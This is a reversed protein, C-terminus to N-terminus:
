PNQPALLWLWAPPNLTNTSPAGVMNLIPPYYDSTRSVVSNSFTVTLYQGSNYLQVFRESLIPNTTGISTAPIPVTKFAIWTGDNTGAHFFVATDPFYNVGNVTVFNNTAPPYAALQFTVGVENTGVPTTHFPPTACAPLVLAFGLMTILLNKKM